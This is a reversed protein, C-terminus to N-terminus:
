LYPKTGKHLHYYHNNRCNPGCYAHKASRRRKTGDRFIKGCYSCTYDYEEPRGYRGNYETREGKERNYTANQAVFDRFSDYLWDGADGATDATPRVPLGMECGEVQALVSKRVGALKTRVGELDKALMENLSRLLGDYKSLAARVEEEAEALQERAGQTAEEWAREAEAQAEEGAERVRGEFGADRYPSVFGEVLRALESPVVAELADLEVAGEGRRDEFDGKRTDSDKIPIRPLNHRRVQELTLAVPRLRIDRGPAYQHIYFEIQRAVAVPMCDGAPDFDSVYGIRTPRDDPLRQLRLLMQVVGSISAMGVNTALNVGHERCIPVLVDNMTSKEVWIELHCPQDRLSHDYGRVSVGPMEFRTLGTAEFRPLGWEPVDGVSWGPEACHGSPLAYDALLHPPPNRRDEFATPDVLGLHRAWVASNNLLVYCRETNLYTAGDPLRPPQPQSVLWYHLRRLHFREPLRYQHFLNTFWGAMLKQNDAGCFFPDREPSLVRFARPRIKLRKALAEVEARCTPNDTCM